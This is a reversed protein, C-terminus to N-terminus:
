SFTRMRGAEWMALALLRDMMPSVRRPGIDFPMPIRLSDIFSSPLMHNNFSQQGLWSTFYRVRLIVVFRVVREPFKPFAGHGQAVHQM